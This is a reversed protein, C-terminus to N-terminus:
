RTLEFTAARTTNAECIFKLEVSESSRKKEKKKEKKKIGAANQVSERQM